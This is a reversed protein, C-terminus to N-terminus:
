QCQGRCTIKMTLKRHPCAWNSLMMPSTYRGASNGSQLLSWFEDINKCGSFEGSMGIVAIAGLDSLTSIDTQTMKMQEM